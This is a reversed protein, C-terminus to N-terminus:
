HLSRYLVQSRRQHQRLQRQNPHPLLLQRQASYHHLLDLLDLLDLPDLPDLLHQASYHHLLDLLDLPDLPDLLDLPDLPDPLLQLQGL